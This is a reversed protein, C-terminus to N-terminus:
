TKPLFRKNTINVCHMYVFKIDVGTAIYEVNQANYSRQKNVSFVAGENIKAEREVKETRKKDRIM